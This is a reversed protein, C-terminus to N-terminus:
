EMGGLSYAAGRRRSSSATNACAWPNPTQNGSSRWFCAAAGFSAGPHWSSLCPHESFSCPELATVLYATRVLVAILCQYRVCVGSLSTMQLFFLNSSWALSCAFVSTNAIAGQNKWRLTLWLAQVVLLEFFACLVNKMVESCGSRRM